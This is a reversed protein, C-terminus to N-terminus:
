YEYFGKKTKKGKMGGDSMQREIDHPAYRPDTFMREFLAYSEEFHADIGAEDIARFPGAAFGAQACVLRDITEAPAADDELLRLAEGFFQSQIRNVVFGPTDRSVITQKGFKQAASTVAEITEDSTHMGRVIEILGRSLVPQFFRMGAIREPKKTGSAIATISLSSTTTVLRTTYHAITDLKKFLDRKVRMDEMAAENIIDCTDLDALQTRKKIRELALQLDEASFIGDSVSKKLDTRIREIARRIVEDNIDYLAVTCKNLAALHAIAVGMEGAGIIGISLAM